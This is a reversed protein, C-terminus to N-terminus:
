IYLDQLAPNIGGGVESIFFAESFLCSDGPVFSNVWDQNINNQPLMM